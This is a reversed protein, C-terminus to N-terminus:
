FAVTWCHSICFGSIPRFNRNKGCNPPDGDSYQWLVQHPFVLITHSGSPLIKKFIHKDMKVSYMFTIFPYVVHHCLSRKHTADRLLFPQMALRFLWIRFDDEAIKKTWFISSRTWVHYLLACCHCSNEEVFLLGHVTFMNKLTRGKLFQKIPYNTLVTCVCM